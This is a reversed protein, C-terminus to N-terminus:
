ITAPVTRFLGTGGEEMFAKPPFIAVTPFDDCRVRSRPTGVDVVVGQPLGLGGALRIHALGALRFCGHCHSAAEM